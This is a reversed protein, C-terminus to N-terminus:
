KFNTTFINHVYYREKMITMWDFDGKTGCILLLLGNNVVLCILAFRLRELILQMCYIQTKNLNLMKEEASGSHSMLM